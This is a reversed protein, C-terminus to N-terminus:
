NTELLVVGPRDMGPARVYRAEAHFLNLHLISAAKAGNREYELKLLSESYWAALAGKSVLATVYKNISDSSWRNNLSAVGTAINITVGTSELIGSADFLRTDMVEITAASTVNSIWTVGGDSSYRKKWTGRAGVTTTEIRLQVKRNPTGTLTIDPPSTGGPTVTGMEGSVTCTDSIVKRLGGITGADGTVANGLLLQSNATLTAADGAVKSHMIIACLNDSNDGFASRAEVFSDWTFKAPTSTSFKAVTPVGPAMAAAILGKGIRRRGATAMGRVLAAYPDQANPLNATWDTLTKGLYTRLVTAYTADSGFDTPTGEIGDALDTGEGVVDFQPMVIQKNVENPRPTFSGSVVAAGSAVLLDPLLAANDKFEGDLAVQATDVSFFDDKSAM